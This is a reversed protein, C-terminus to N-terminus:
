YELTYAAYDQMGAACINEFFSGGRYPDSKDTGQVKLDQRQAFEGILGGSYSFRAPLNKRADTL